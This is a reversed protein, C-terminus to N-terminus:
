PYIDFKMSELEVVGSAKWFANREKPCARDGGIGLRMACIPRIERLALADLWELNAKMQRVEATSLRVSPPVGLFTEPPHTGAM